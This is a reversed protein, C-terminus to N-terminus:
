YLWTLIVFLGRHHMALRHRSDIRNICHGQLTHCSGFRSLFQNRTKSLDGVHLVDFDLQLHQRLCFSCSVLDCRPTEAITTPVSFLDRLCYWGFNLVIFLPPFICYFYFVSLFIILGSFGHNWVPVVYCDWRADRAKWKCCGLTKNRLFFHCVNCRHSNWFNRLRDM